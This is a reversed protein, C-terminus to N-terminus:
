TYNNYGNLCGLDLLKELFNYVKKRFKEKKRMSKM